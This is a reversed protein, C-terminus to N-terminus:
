PTVTTPTTPGPTTSRKGSHLGARFMAARWATHRHPKGKLVQYQPLGPLLTSARGLRHDPFLSSVTEAANLMQSRILHEVLPTSLSPKPNGFPACRTSEATSCTTHSISPAQCNPTKGPWSTTDPGSLCRLGSKSSPARLAASLFTTGTGAM